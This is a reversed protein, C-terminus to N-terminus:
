TPTAISSPQQTTSDVPTPTTITPARARAQVMYRVPPGQQYPSAFSQQQMPVYSAQQQTTPQLHRQIVHTQQPPPQQVPPSAVHVVRVPQPPPPPSLYQLQQQPPMVPAVQMTGYNELRPGQQQQPPQRVVMSPIVGGVMVPPGSSIQLPPHEEEFHPSYPMLDADKEPLVEKMEKQYVHLFDRPTWGLVTTAYVQTIGLGVMEDITLGLNRWELLTYRMAAVHQRELRYSRLYDILTLKYEPFKASVRDHLAKLETSKFQIRCLETINGGCMDELVDLLTIDLSSMMTEVNIKSRYKHWTAANLGSALMLKWGYGLVLLDEVTYGREFLDSVTIKHSLLLRANVGSRMLIWSPQKSDLMTLPNQEIAAVGQEGMTEDLGYQLGAAMRKWANGMIGPQALTSGQSQARPTNSYAIISPTVLEVRDLRKQLQSWRLFAKNEGALAKRKEVLNHVRPDDGVDLPNLVMDDLDDEKIITSRSPLVTETSTCVFCHGYKNMLSRFCGYHYIHGCPLSSFSAPSSILKGCLDCTVKCMLTAIQARTEAEGAPLKKEFDM